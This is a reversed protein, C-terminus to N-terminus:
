SSPTVTKGPVVTGCLPVAGSVPQFTSGSYKAFWYCNDPGLSGVRQSLNISHSGFLGAATFNTIHSLANILSSNSPNSGAGQLGQVLLAISTYGAYEAYTPDTTIGVSKLDNQFQTTASTHLEVPEWPSLFSLGQAVQQADPGAQQLDGGYGTAFVAVKPNAGVQRLATILAFASNPDTSATAADVGASKMALAVPQVNTSGFPFNANLYGAKLGVAEASAAAGKASEASSPSISYGLSGVNTGGQMKFYQGYTTTVIRPDTYGFVGFMNNSTIWETGDEAAGIVPIGQSTLYPAASFTLASVAIVASVHDQQVLKQAAPLVGAPNTATDAVVYKITYGARKALVTGAQVGQPSTKNGSAALGTVDTLVGVTLTKGGGSSTGSSTSSSSCSAAVVLIVATAAALLKLRKNRM